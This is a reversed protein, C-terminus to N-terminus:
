GSVDKYMTELPFGRKKRIWKLKNRERKGHHVQLSISIGKKREANSHQQYVSIATKYNM